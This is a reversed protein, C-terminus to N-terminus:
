EVIWKEPLDNFDRVESKSIFTYLPEEPFNNMRLFVLDGGIESFWYVTDQGHKKWRIVQDFYKKISLIRM